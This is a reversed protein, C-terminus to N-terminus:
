RVLKAPRMTLLTPPDSFRRCAKSDSGYPDLKEANRVIYEIVRTYRKLLTKSVFIVNGRPLNPDLCASPLGRVIPTSM